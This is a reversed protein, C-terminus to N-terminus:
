TKVVSQFDGSGDYAITLTAVTSGSLGGSKYLVTTPDNNANVATVQITDYTVGGVLKAQEKVLWNQSGATGQNATITGSVRITEDDGGSSHVSKFLDLLTDLPFAM